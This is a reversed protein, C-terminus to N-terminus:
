YLPYALVSFTFSPTTGAIAWTARLTDAWDVNNVVTATGAVAPDAAVTLETTFSIDRKVNLMVTQVVGTNRAFQVLENFNTAGIRAQVEVDLTPTTGSQATVDLVVLLARAALWRPETVASGDATTTRAASALITVADGIGRRDLVNPATQSFVADDHLGFQCRLVANTGDRRIARFRSLNDASDLTILTGPEALTGTTTTPATADLRYRISADDVYVIAANSVGFTGATFGVSTTSVTLNEYNVAVFPM